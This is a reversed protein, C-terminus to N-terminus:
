KTVERAADAVAAAAIEMMCRHHGKPCRAQGHLTCPRCPLDAEVVRARPGQPFFGLERSTPGFVAVLPVDLADAVHMLGSDNTLVLRAGAIMAASDSLALQGALNLTRVGRARLGESVAAAVARDSGGGLVVAAWEPGALGAAAEVFREAPWQKTPHRAGPAVALYESLGGADRAAAASAVAGAALFLRPRRGERGIGFDELATFYRDSVPPADRLFNLPTRTLLIRPLSLKRYARRMMAGGLWRVYGSRLNRHLDVVLDYRQATLERTLARLGKFGSKDEFAWVRAIGPHNAVLEAFERKVAYDIRAGPFRERLADIVPLTLIVDGMASFRVVLVKGM